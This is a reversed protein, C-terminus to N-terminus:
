PQAFNFRAVARAGLVYYGDSTPDTNPQYSVQKQQTIGFLTVQVVYDGPPLFAANADATYYFAYFGKGDTVLTQLPTTANASFLKVVVGQAPRRNAPGVSITITGQIGLPTIPIGWPWPNPPNNPVQVGNTFGSNPKYAVKGAPYVNGATDLYDVQYKGAPLFPGAATSSAPTYYFSYNLLGNLPLTLSASSTLHTLRAAVLQGRHDNPDPVGGYIGLKLFPAQGIAPTALGAIGILCLALRFLRAPGPHVSRSLPLM